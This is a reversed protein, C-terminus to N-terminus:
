LENKLIQQYINKLQNGIREISREEAVKYGAEVTSDIKGDLYDEITKKFENNDRGMFCNIKNKLWPSYVEIDRVLVQTKSALAELVVIGETEEYSPFFFMDASQFAGQIIDGDIYGPLIVNSPRNRIAKKVNETLLTSSTHGFWIFKIDPFSRAIEIFDVIGKREFYHGVSIVTKQQKNLKFHQQFKKKKENNLRFDDLNIGNSIPIIPVKFGMKDILTKSYPTPTLLVDATSYCKILWKRFLPAIQNSLAFSNRFDEETSHAHFIVKKHNKKALKALMFSKPNITNLHIIDYEDKYDLTFDVKALRLAERQHKLARGIGSKRFIKEDDQFLCIKM